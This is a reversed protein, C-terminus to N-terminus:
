DAGKIQKMVKKGMIDWYLVNAGEIVKGKFEDTIELDFTEFSESDMVNANNGSISLVQATKKEIIPVEVSHGSPLVLERKRNDLLGIAVIRIKAHGHKGSKSAQADTVRCAVGDVLLYSGAKIQNVNVIKTAM